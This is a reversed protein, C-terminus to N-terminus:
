GCDPAQVRQGGGVVVVWGRVGGREVAEGIPNRWDVVLSLASAM